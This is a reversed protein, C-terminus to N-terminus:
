ASLDRRVRQLLKQGEATEGVTALRSLVPIDRKLVKQIETVTYGIEMALSVLIGRASRLRQGRRRSVIDLLTVSTETETAQVLPHIPLKTVKMEIGSMREHVSEIFREDGVIQQEYAEYPSINKDPEDTTM